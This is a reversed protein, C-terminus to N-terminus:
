NMKHGVFGLRSDFGRDIEIHLEEGLSIPIGHDAHTSCPVLQFFGTSPTDPAKFRRRWHYFRQLNINHERCFAATPRNNL